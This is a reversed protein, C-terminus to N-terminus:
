ASPDGDAGIAAFDKGLGAAFRQMRERSFGSASVRVNDLFDSFNLVITSRWPGDHWEITLLETIRRRDTMGLHSRIILEDGDARVFAPRFSLLWDAM